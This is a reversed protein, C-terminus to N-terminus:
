KMEHRAGELFFVNQLYARRTNYINKSPMNDKM